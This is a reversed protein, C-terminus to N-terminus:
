AQCTIARLGPLDGDTVIRPWEPEDGYLQDQIARQRLISRDIIVLAPHIARVAEGLRPPRVVVPRWESGRGHIVAAVRAGNESLTAYVAWRGPRHLPHLREASASMVRQRVADVWEPRPELSAAIKLAAALRLLDLLERDKSGEALSLAQRSNQHLIDILTSLPLRRTSSKASGALINHQPGGGSQAL